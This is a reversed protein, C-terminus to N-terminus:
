NFLYKDYNYMIHKMQFAYGWKLSPWYDHSCFTAKPCSKITNVISYLLQTYYVDLEDPIILKCRCSALLSFYVIEFARWAVTGSLCAEFDPM